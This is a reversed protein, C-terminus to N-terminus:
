PTGGPSSMLPNDREYNQARNLFDLADPLDNFRVRTTPAQCDRSRRLYLIRLVDAETRHADAETQARKAIEDAYIPEPANDACFQRHVLEHALVGLYLDDCPMRMRAEARLSIDCSGSLQTRMLDGEGAEECEPPRPSEESAMANLVVMADRFASELYAARDAYDAHVSPNDDWYRQIAPVARVTEALGEAMADNYRIASPFCQLCQCNTMAARAESELMEEETVGEGADQQASAPPPMAGLALLL